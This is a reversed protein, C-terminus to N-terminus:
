GGIWFCGTRNTGYNEFRSNTGIILYTEAHLNRAKVGTNDAALVETSDRYVSMGDETIQTKMESGTKDITLGTEDFVFGTATTVKTTGNAIENQIQITIQESTMTAAVQNTLTEISSNVGSIAKTTTDEVSKVSASISETNLQLTAIEATNAKAEGAVLEIQRNAKDVKATTQQLLEGLTTPNNTSTSNSAEFDVTTKQSLGGNYSMSDNIVFSSIFDGDKTEIEIKDGSELLYNGRWKLTFPQITAGDVRALAEEVLDAIDERLEWFPNNRIYQTEGNESDGAIVNDGLETASCIATLTHLEKSTLEMYDAKTIRLVADGGFDLSRFVLIEMGGLSKIYYITQTAEAASDFVSKITETGDLNAGNEFYLEFPQSNEYEVSLGLVSAAMGVATGISYVEPLKAENITHATASYLRDYATFTINNTNEDRKVEDVYYTPYYPQSTNFDIEEDNAGFHIKVENGKEINYQRQTDRISITTKQIIGFGFFKGDEGTREVECSVLDDNYRWSHVLTSGNYLEVKTKITRLPTNQMEVSTIM